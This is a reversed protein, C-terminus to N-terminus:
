NLPNEYHEDRCLPNENPDIPSINIQVVSKTKICATGDRHAFTWTVKASMLYMVGSMNTGTKPNQLRPKVAINNEFVHYTRSKGNKFLVDVTHTPQNDM